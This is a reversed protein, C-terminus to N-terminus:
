DGTKKGLGRAGATKGLAPPPPPAGNHFCTDCCTPPSLGLVCGNTSLGCSRLWGACGWLRYRARDADLLSVILAQSIFLRKSVWSRAPAATGDRLGPPLGTSM